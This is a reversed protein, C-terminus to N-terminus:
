EPKRGQAFIWQTHRLDSFSPRVEASLGVFGMHALHDVLEHEAQVQVDSDSNTGTADWHDQGYPTLPRGSSDALEEGFGMQLSLLGGPRLVRFADRLLSDRISYVPIHQLTITSMVFDYSADPIPRLDVGSAVWFHCREGDFEGRCSAINAESLDIGDVSHWDATSLLNRINRGKGCGIDLASKGRWADHDQSVPGLLITWYDPNANHEVHDSTGARYAVKQMATYRNERLVLRRMLTLVRAKSLGVSTAM